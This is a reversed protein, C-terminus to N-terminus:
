RKLHFKCLPGPLLYILDSMVNIIGSSIAKNKTYAEIAKRKDKEVSNRDDGVWVLWDENPFLADMYNAHLNDRIQALKPITTKNNWPLTSNTTTSTDTAFIYKYLEKWEQIKQYKQIRWRDYVQALETALSDSGKANIISQLEVVKDTM